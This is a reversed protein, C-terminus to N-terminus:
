KIGQYNEDELGATELSSVSAGNFLTGLGVPKKWEAQSLKHLSWSCGGPTKAALWKQPRGCWCAECAFNWVSAAQQLSELPSYDPIKTIMGLLMSFSNVQPFSLAPWLKTAWTRFWLKGSKRGLIYQIKKVKLTAQPRKFLQKKLIQSYKQM